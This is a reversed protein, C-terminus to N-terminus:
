FFISDCAVFFFPSQLYRRSCKMSYGLSSKPGSFNDVYSFYFKKNPYTLKLFDKVKKSDFGLAIVFETNEPFNEIIYSIAPKNGIEILCKNLNRTLNYLRSGIGATPIFVKLKKKDKITM